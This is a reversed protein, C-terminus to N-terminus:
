TESPSLRDVPAVLVSSGASCVFVLVFPPFVVVEELSSRTVVPGHSHSDGQALRGTDSDVKGKRGGGRRAEGNSRSVCEALITSQVEESASNISCCFSRASVKKQESSLDKEKALEHLYVAAEMNGLHARKKRTREAETEAARALKEFEVQFGTPLAGDQVLTFYLLAHDSQGQTGLASVGSGPQSQSPIDSGPPSLSPIESGPSIPGRPALGGMQGVQRTVKATKAQQSVSAIQATEVMPFPAKDGSEASGPASPDQGFIADVSSETSTTDFVAGVSPASPVTGFVSGVSPQLPVSGFVPGM